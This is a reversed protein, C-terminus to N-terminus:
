FPIDDDFDGAPVSAFNTRKRIDAQVPPPEFAESVDQTGFASGDYCYEVIEPYKKNIHVRVHSPMRLEESREIAEDATKPMANASRQMWWMKARRQAFGEHQVCVYDDFKRLGSYYTVKMAPPKDYKEHRTITISDVKFIEIVAVDGKILEETSAHQKLKSQFVFEHGCGNVTMFPQGGCYRASAHNYAGCVECLKVPAEGVKEGRKRPIVPDNIPGLRKTNGAFDLVLCNHKGGNAIAFLRGETTSLDFGAEYVPRTGRGLMQVWLVTSNTPRLMLILDIAPFDFGTTLVNNNTVAQIKGSKFEAITKDREEATLKSHVPKCSIGMTNLMDSVHIAHEVGSCFVLWHKRDHALEMAEKIAAFSIEHKDVAMQLESAIFEGGRVHVGDVDLTTTTRRPILPSLYGESILKNFADMTTIDYCVDTFIGDETIHGQGLRWPTATLGIVKLYPNTAKLQEIFKRYMTEDNPSVLHAEDILILDVHGFEHARKAVSGIGAFVIKNLTDRRKLGASYVGAPASPWLALLKLYNQEILEKVHTLCMIKQNPYSRFVSELFLAIVVSKGTGTPMAVVPNGAKSSFYNYIGTVADIQYDRGKIM